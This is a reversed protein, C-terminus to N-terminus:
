NQWEVTTDAMSLSQYKSTDPYDFLYAVVELTLVEGTSPSYGGAWEGNGATITYSTASSSLGESLYVVNGSQDLMRIQYYEAGETGNWAALLTGSGQFEASVIEVPDLYAAQLQDSASLTEGSSLQATFVFNDPSPVGPMYEYEDPDYYFYTSYSMVLSVYPYYASEAYVSVVDVNSAAQFGLAYVTDQETAKALYYVDGAMEPTVDDDDMCSALLFAFMIGILVNSNMLTKM